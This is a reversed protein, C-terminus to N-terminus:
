IKINHLSAGDAPRCFSIEAKSEMDPHASLYRKLIDPGLGDVPHQKLLGISCGRFGAGSFRAGIVGESDCLVEYATRLYRNGCEYNKVSSRGSETIIRGFEELDGGEWLEVGRRVRQQESFFHTARRRLPEPLIGRYNLFIERPVRRLKPSGKPAMGAKQLLIRAAEECEEVRRNYDTNSLQSELGSYLIGVWIDCEIGCSHLTVENTQCDLHMLKDKKSMLISSQDLLGNNLGIFDNEIRRDLEINQRRTVDLGNVTELALLYAVGVAASSSLGGVHEYGDVLGLFGNQIKYEQRFAFIAGRLYDGWDGEPEPVKDDLAFEITGPFNTSQVRVEAKQTPAFALLLAKELAMGTVEGLQHDIHAGVPCIRYPSRVIRVASRDVSFRQHLSEVLRRIREIDTEAM